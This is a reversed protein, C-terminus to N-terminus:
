AGAVPMRGDGYAGAEHYLTILLNYADHVNLLTGRVGPSAELRRRDELSRMEALAAVWKGDPSALVRASVFGPDGELGDFMGGIQEVLTAQADPHVSWVHLLVPSQDM